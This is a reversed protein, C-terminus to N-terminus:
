GRVVNLKQPEVLKDCPKFLQQRKTEVKAVIITCDVTPLDRTQENCM